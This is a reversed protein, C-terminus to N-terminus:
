HELMRVTFKAEYVFAPFQTGTRTHFAQIFDLAVGIAWGNPILQLDQEPPLGPKASQPLYEENNILRYGPDVDFLGEKLDLLYELQADHPYTHYGAPIAGNAMENAIYQELNTLQQLQIWEHLYANLFAVSFIIERRIHYWTDVKAEQIATDLWYRSVAHEKEPNATSRGPSQHRTSVTKDYSVPLKLVQSSLEKNM